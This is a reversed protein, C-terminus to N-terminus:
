QRGAPLVSSRVDQSHDEDPNQSGSQSTRARQTGSPKARTRKRATQARSLEAEALKSLAEAVTHQRDSRRHQYILAARATSHGMRDMLTRLDAGTSAALDNGTHRLDHFHIEGVNAAAVAKLWIRRRFHEHRLPRGGPSTFVLASSDPAVFAELHETLRGIIVRPIAVTRIGAASKPPGFAFGGGRAPSLQRSVRVTAATLDIDSRTLAGLEGWRLSTFAALLVLAQYRVDIVDALVFVQAITLVPREPSTEQGAGKIRCPNRQILRDDVATNLTAKM